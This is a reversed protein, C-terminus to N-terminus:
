GPPAAWAALECSPRAEQGQNAQLWCEFTVAAFVASQDDDCIGHLARDLSAGFVSPEVVGLAALNPVRSVEPAREVVSRFCHIVAMTFDAKDTRDRIAPPLVDALVRRQIVRGRGPEAFQEWPLRLSLEVLSRDLLPHRFEVSSVPDDFSHPALTIIERHLKARAPLEFLPEPVGPSPADVSRLWRPVVRERRRARRHLSMRLLPLWSLGDSAAHRRIARWWRSWQRGMFLDALFNPELFNGLVADGGHGTLCVSSGLRGLRLRDEAVIQQFTHLGVSQRGVLDAIRFSGDFRLAENSLEHKACLQEQYPREDVESPTGVYSVTHVRRPPSRDGLLVAAIASVSSSDLGGSLESVVDGQRPLSGEVAGFLAARFLEDYDENDLGRLESTERPQWHRETKGEGAPDVQLLCGPPLQAIGRYITAGAHDSFFGCLLTHRLEGVDIEPVQSLAPLLLELHSAIFWRGGDRGHVIKKIGLADRAALVMGNARDFIVFGFEGTLREPFSPGWRQYAAGLLEALPEDALHPAGLETSVEVRNAVFGRCAVLVLEGVLCPCADRTGAALTRCYIGYGPGVLASAAGDVRTDPPAGFRSASGADFWAVFGHAPGM